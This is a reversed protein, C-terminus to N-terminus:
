IRSYRIMLNGIRIIRNLALYPIFQEYDHGLLNQSNPFFKQFITVQKLIRFTKTIHFRLARTAEVVKHTPNQMVFFTLETKFSGPSNRTKSIWKIARRQFHCSSKCHNNRSHFISRETLRCMQRRSFQTASEHQDVSFM